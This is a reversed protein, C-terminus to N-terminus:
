QGQLFMWKGAPEHCRFIINSGIVLQNKRVVARIYEM